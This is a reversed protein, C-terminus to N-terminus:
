RTKANPSGTSVIGYGPSQFPPPIPPSPPELTGFSVLYPVGLTAFPPVPPAAMPYLAILQGNGGFRVMDGQRGIPLASGYESALGLTAIFPKTPDGGEFAVICQEGRQCVFQLGPSRIPLGKVFPLRGTTVPSADITQRATNFSNIIYPYFGFLRENFWSTVLLKLGAFFRDM